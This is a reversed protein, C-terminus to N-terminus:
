ERRRGLRPCRALAPLPRRRSGRPVRADDVLEAVSSVLESAPDALEAVTGLSSVLRTPREDLTYSAVVAPRVGADLSRLDHLEYERYHRRALVELMPERTPIGQELREALFRVIQEPITALAEIRRGRDPLDDDATSRRSSTACASSSTRASQTWLRSTSGASGSAAPWTASRRTARSRSADSVNWCVVPRPPSSAPRRPRGAGPVWLASVLAVEPTTRQQALFIRFVAAELEPTRDVDDVGYHRLVRELRERFQEPLGGRDVDLSQLYTHFHERSSHVRLESQRDEDVPRNRTLEALDAFSELLAVEDAMVSEARDSVPGTTQERVALYESLAADQDEPPVDYGLVVASLAALARTRQTTPDIVQDVPLDLAPGTEWAAEEATDGLPELKILATGTEVQSGTIVALEKVRAAFPAHLVTEMKMSELVVVAAGAEVEDGVAVPTAVM